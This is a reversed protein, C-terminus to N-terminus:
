HEHALAAGTLDMGDADLPVDALRVSALGSDMDSMFLHGARLQVAWIMPAHGGFFTSRPTHAVAYYGVVDVLDAHGEMVSEGHLLVDFPLRFSSPTAPEATANGGDRGFHRVLRDIDWIWVGGHYNAGIVWTGYLDFNHPSFLYGTEITPAGPLTWFGLTKIDSLDTTDLVWWHGSTEHAFWEPGVVTVQTGHILQPFTAAYHIAGDGAEFGKWQGAVTPAAPDSVDLVILGEDWYSVWAYTKGDVPSESVSLEHPFYRGEAAALVAPDLNRTYESVPQIVRRGGVDTLKGIVVKTAVPNEESKTVANLFQYTCMFVYEEGGIVHYHVTHAGRYLPLFSELQPDAPDTLDVVYVGWGMPEEGPLRTPDYKVLNAPNSPDTWQTALFATKGDPTIKVDAGYTNPVLFRSLVVPAAPDAVDVVVMGSTKGAMGLVAIGAAVDLATNADSPAGDLALDDFAATAVNPSLVTHLLVDAHDHDVELLAALDLDDATPLSQPAVAETAPGLCGALAASLLVVALASARRM